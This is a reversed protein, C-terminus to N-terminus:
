SRWAALCSNGGFPGSSTCSCERRCPLCSYNPLSFSRLGRWRNPCCCPSQSAANNRDPQPKQPRCGAVSHHWPVTRPSYLSTLASCTEGSTEQLQKVREAWDVAARRLDRELRDIEREVLRQEDSTIGDDLLPKVADYFELFRVLGVTEGSQLEDMVDDLRDLILEKRNIPCSAHRITNAHAVLSERFVFNKLPTWNWIVLGVGLVVSGVVMQVARIVLRRLSTILSQM